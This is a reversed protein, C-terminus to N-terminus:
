DADLFLNCYILTSTGVYKKKTKSHVNQNVYKVFIRIQNM